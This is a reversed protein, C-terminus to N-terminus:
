TLSPLVPVLGFAHELVVLALGGLLFLVGALAMLRALRERNRLRRLERAVDTGIGSAFVLLSGEGGRVLAGGQARGVVRAPTREHIVETTVSRKEAKREHHSTMSIWLARGLGVRLTGATTTFTADSAISAVPSSWVTANKGSGSWTNESGVAVVRGGFTGDSAGWVGDPLPHPHPPAAVMMELWKLRSRTAWWLWGTALACGIAAVSTGIAGRLQGGDRATWFAFLVAGLGTFIAAVTPIDHEPLPATGERFRPLFAADLALPALAIASAALAGLALDDHAWALALTLPLAALAAYLPYNPGLRNTHDPDSVVRALAPRPASVTRARAAEKEHAAIARSVLQERDSGTALALAGLRTVVRPPAERFSQGAAAAPGEAEVDGWAVVPEGGRLVATVLEVELDPAPAEDAFRRALADAELDRWRARQRSVPACAEACTITVLVETGEDTTVRLERGIWRREGGGLSAWGAIPEDPPGEVRGRM